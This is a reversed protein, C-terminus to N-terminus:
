PSLRDALALTPVDRRRRRQCARDSSRLGGRTPRVYRTSRGEMPDTTSGPDPQQFSIFPGGTAVARFRRCNPKPPWAKRRSPLTATSRPDPRRYQAHRESRQRQPPQQLCRTMRVVGDVAEFALPQQRARNINTGIPTVYTGEAGHHYKVDGTSGDDDSGPEATKGDRLNPWCNKCNLRRSRRSAAATRWASSPRKRATKPWDSITEKGADSGDRRPRRDLLDEAVHVAQPTVKRHIRSRPSVNCFKCRASRSLQAATTSGEIYERLRERQEIDSIHEIEYAITGSYVNRLNPLVEALTRGSGQRATRRRCM